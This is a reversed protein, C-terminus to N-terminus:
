RERQRYAVLLYTCNKWLRDHNHNLNHGLYFSLPKVVGLEAMLVPGAFALSRVGTASQWVELRMTHPKLISLM